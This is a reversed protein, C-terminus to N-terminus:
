RTDLNEESVAMYVETDVEDYKIKLPREMNYINPSVRKVAKRLEEDNEAEAAHWYMDFAHKLEKALCPCDQVLVGLEMKQSLSRWDLNASGLYFSHGDAIIFKSHMTGSNYIKQLNLKRLAALGAKQLSRADENDGKDKSPANEM